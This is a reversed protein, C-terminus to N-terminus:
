APSGGTTPEPPPPAGGSAQPVTPPTPQDAAARRARASKHGLLLLGALGSGLLVLHTSVPLAAVFWVAFAVLMAGLELVVILFLAIAALNNANRTM